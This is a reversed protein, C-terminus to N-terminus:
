KLLNKQEILFDIFNKYEPKLSNFIGIKQTYCTPTAKIDKIIDEFNEKGSFVEIARQKFYSDVKFLHIIRIYERKEINNM